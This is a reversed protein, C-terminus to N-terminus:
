DGRGPFFGIRAGGLGRRPSSPQELASSSVLGEFRSPTGNQHKWSRDWSRRCAIKKIGYIESVRPFRPIPCPREVPSRGRQQPAGGRTPRKGIGVAVADPSSGGQGAPETSGALWRAGAQGRGHESLGPGKARRRRGDSPLARTEAGWRTASSPVCKAVPANRRDNGECRGRPPPTSPEIWTAQGRRCREPSATAGVTTPAGKLCRGTRSFYGEAASPKEKQALAKKGRVGGKEARPPDRLASEPLSDAPLPPFKKLARPLSEAAEVLEVPEVM